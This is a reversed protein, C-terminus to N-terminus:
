ENVGRIPDNRLFKSFHTFLTAYKRPIVSVSMDPKYLTNELVPRLNAVQFVQEGRM